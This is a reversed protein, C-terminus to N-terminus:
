RENNPLRWCAYALLSWGAIFCIGGVPTIPGFWRPGGLALAYLSGSFLLTGLIFFRGAIVILKENYLRYLLGVGFLALAHYMQYQVGLQFTALLNDALSGKLAHAAFAGLIVALGGLLAALTLMVNM